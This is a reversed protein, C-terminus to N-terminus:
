LGHPGGQLARLDAPLFDLLDPWDAGLMTRIVGLKWIVASLDPARTNLLTDLADRHLDLQRDRELEEREMEISAAVAPGDPSDKRVAFWLREAANFRALALDFRAEADRWASVAAPWTPLPVPASRLSISAAPTAAVAGLLTRRSPHHPPMM